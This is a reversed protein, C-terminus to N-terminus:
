QDHLVSDHLNSEDPEPAHSGYYRSLQKLSTGLDGDVITRRAFRLPRYIPTRVQGSSHCISAPAVRNDSHKRVIAGDFIDFKARTVQELAQALASRVDGHARDADGQGFPERCRV